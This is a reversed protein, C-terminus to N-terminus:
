LDKILVLSNRQYNYIRQKQMPLEDPGARRFGHEIFWHPTHTTLSFLHKLGMQRAETEVRKLLAAARGGRRYDPHVAVCALEGMANQPFPFLACCAIVLGDRVIVNFHQIDLELQERSRAVLVGQQELPQILQLVGGVDEISADRTAEYDPDSYLMVGVGDRTYLERLLAGDIHGVLHVRKVGGRTAALAAQLYTRDIDSFGANAALLREGDAVSLQGADGADEALRWQDPNTPTVFVLKDAGLATAVAMAVDEARVNFIEGTPSYGIPSLLAIRDQDLVQRISDVDVRRVDGTFQHDVGGLVGVPRATIWNGSTVRIRAGGMPSSALSTSLRAEIEMRLVGAASKACELTARDTVRMGNIVRAELGQAQLRADIQPRMGHVLVVKVGLSQLLAIDYILQDFDAREAAEGGFAIVFVRGNHAHVYPACARLVAVFDPQSM